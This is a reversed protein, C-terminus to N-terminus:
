LKERNGANKDAKGQDAPSRYYCVMTGGRVLLGTWLCQNKLKQTLCLCIRRTNSHGHKGTERHTTTFVHRIMAAHATSWRISRLLLMAKGVSQILRERRPLFWHSLGEEYRRWPCARRLAFSSVFIVVNHQASGVIVNHSETSSSM